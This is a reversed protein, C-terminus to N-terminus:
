LQLPFAVPTQANPWALQTFTELIINQSSISSHHM